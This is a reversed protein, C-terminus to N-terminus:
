VCIHIYVKNSILFSFNNSINIRLLVHFEIFVYRSMISMLFKFKIIFIFRKDYFYSMTNLAHNISQSSKNVDDYAKNISVLSGWSSLSLEGPYIILDCLVWLGRWVFVVLTGIVLVSFMCDIVYFGPEKAAQFSVIFAVFEFYQM